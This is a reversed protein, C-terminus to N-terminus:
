WRLWKETHLEVTNLINVDYYFLDGSSKMKCIHVKIRILCIGWTEGEGLQRCGSHIKNILLKDNLSHNDNLGHALVLGSLVFDQPCHYKLLLRLFLTGHTISVLLLCSLQHCLRKEPGCPLPKPPQLLWWTLHPPFAHSLCYARFVDRTISYTWNQPAPLRTLLWLQATLLAGPVGPFLLNRM